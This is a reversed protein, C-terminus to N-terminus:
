SCQKAETHNHVRQTILRKQRYEYGCECKFGIIENNKEIMSKPQNAKCGTKQKHLKWQLALNDLTLPHYTKAGFLYWISYATVGLWLLAILIEAIVETEKKKNINNNTKPNPQQQNNQHSKKPNKNKTKNHTIQFKLRTFTTYTNIITFEESESNYYLINTSFVIRINPLLNNNKKQKRSFTTNTSQKM